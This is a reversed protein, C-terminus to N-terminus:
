HSELQNLKKERNECMKIKFQDRTAVFKYGRFEELFILNFSCDKLAIVCVLSVKTKETMMEQFSQIRQDVEVSKWYELELLALPHNERIRM